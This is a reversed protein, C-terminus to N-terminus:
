MTASNVWREMWVYVQHVFLILYMRSHLTYHFKNCPPFLDRITIPEISFDYNDRREDNIEALLSAFGSRSSGSMSVM